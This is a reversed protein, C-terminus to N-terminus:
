RDLPLIRNVYEIYVCIQQMQQRKLTGLDPKRAPNPPTSMTFSCRLVSWLFRVETGRTKYPCPRISDHMGVIVGTYDM